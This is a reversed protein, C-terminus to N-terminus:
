RPSTSGLCPVGSCSPGDPRLRDGHQRGSQRDLLQRVPIVAVLIEVIRSQKEEIVSSAIQMGYVMSSMMFLVAFALGAPLRGHCGLHQGGAGRVPVDDTPRGARPSVGAAAALDAMTIGTLVESLTM